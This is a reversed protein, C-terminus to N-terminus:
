KKTYIQVLGCQDDFYVKEFDKISEFTDMMFSQSVEKNNVIKQPVIQNSKKFQNYAICAFSIATILILKTKM